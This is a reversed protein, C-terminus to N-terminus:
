SKTVGLLVLESVELQHNPICEERIIPLAPLVSIRCHKYHSSKVLSVDFDIIQDRNRNNNRTLVFTYGKILTEINKPNDFFVEGNYANLFSKRWNGRVGTAGFTKINNQNTQSFDDRSRQGNDDTTMLNLSM